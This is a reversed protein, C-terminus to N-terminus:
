DSTRSLQELREPSRFDVVLDPADHHRRASRSLRVSLEFGGVEWYHYARADRSFCRADSHQRLASWCENPANMRTSLEDGLAQILAAVIVRYGAGWERFRVKDRVGKSDLVARVACVRGGCFRLTVEAPFGLERLVGGCRASEGDRAYTHGARECARRARRERWGFRFGALELPAGDPDVEPPEGDPHFHPTGGRSAPDPQAVASSRPTVACAVLLVFLAGHARIM